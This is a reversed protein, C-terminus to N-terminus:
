FSVIFCVEIYTSHITLVSVHALDFLLKKVKYHDCLNFDTFKVMVTNLKSVGCIFKFEPFYGAFTFSTLNPAELSVVYFSDCQVISLTRLRPVVRRSIKIISPLTCSRLELCELLPSNSLIEEISEVKLIVMRLHLATLSTLGSFNSPVPCHCLSLKLIRVTTCEFLSSPITLDPVSIWVGLDLEEVGKMVAFNIWGEVTPADCREKLFIRLRDVKHGVHRKIIRDIISVYGNRHRGKAFNQEFDLFRSLSWSNKFRTSVISTQVAQKIPLYSFINEIINYDSIDNIRQHDGQTRKKLKRVNTQGM